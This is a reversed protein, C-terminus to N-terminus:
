LMAEPWSSSLAGILRVACAVGGGRARVEIFKVGRMAMLRVARLHVQGCSLFRYQAAGGEGEGGTM